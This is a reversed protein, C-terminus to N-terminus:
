KYDKHSSRMYVAATHFLTTLAARRSPPPHKSDLAHRHSVCRQSTQLMECFESKSLPTPLHSTQDSPCVRGFLNIAVSYVWGHLFISRPWRALPETVTGHNLTIYICAVHLNITRHKRKSATYKSEHM